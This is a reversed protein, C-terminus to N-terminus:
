VHFGIADCSAPLIRKDFQVLFAAINARLVIFGAIGGAFIARHNKRDAFRKALRHNVLVKRPSGLLELFVNHLNAFADFVV